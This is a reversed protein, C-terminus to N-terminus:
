KTLFILILIIMTFLGCDILKSFNIRQEEVYNESPYEMKITASDIKGRDINSIGTNDSVPTIDGSITSLIRRPSRLSPNPPPTSSSLLRRSSYNDDNLIAEYTSKITLLDRSRPFNPVLYVLDYDAVKFAECAKAKDCGAENFACKKLEDLDGSSLSDDMVWSPPRREENKMATIMNIGFYLEGLAYAQWVPKACVDVLPHCSSDIDLKWNGGDQFKESQDSCNICTITTLINYLKKRCAKFEEDRIPDIDLSIEGNDVFQNPDGYEDYFREGPEFDRVWGNAEADTRFAASAVRSRFTSYTSHFGKFVDVMINFSEVEKEISQIKEQLKEYISEPDCCNKIVSGSEEISKLSEYCFTPLIDSPEQLPSISFPPTTPCDCNVIVALVLMLLVKKYISNKQVIKTKGM